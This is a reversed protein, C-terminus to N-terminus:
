NSLPNEPEIELARRYCAAAEEPFGLRGFLDGLEAMGAADLPSRRLRSYVTFFMSATPEDLEIGAPLGPVGLASALPDLREPNEQMKEVPPVGPMLFFWGTAGGYVWVAVAAALVVSFPLMLWGFRRLLPPRPRPRSANPQPVKNMERLNYLSRMFRM